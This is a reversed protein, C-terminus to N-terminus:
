IRIRQAQRQKDAIDKLNAWYSAIEKFSQDIENVSVSIGEKALEKQANLLYAEKEKAKLADETVGKFLTGGGQALNLVANIAMVALPTGAGETAVAFVVGVVAGIGALVTLAVNAYGAYKYRSNLDALEDGNVKSQNLIDTVNSQHGKIKENAYLSKLEKNKLQSKIMMVLLKMLVSEAKNPDTKMLQEYEENLEQIRHNIKKMEETFIHLEKQASRVIPDPKTTQGAPTDSTTDEGWILGKIWAFFNGLTGRDEEVAKASYKLDVKENALSVEPQMSKLSDSYYPHAKKADAHGYDKQQWKIENGDIKTM